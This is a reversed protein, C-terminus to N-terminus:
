IKITITEKIRHGNHIIIIAIPYNISCGIVRITIVITKVVLYTRNAIGIVISNCIRKNRLAVGVTIAIHLCCLPHIIVILISEIITVFRILIPIIVALCFENRIFIYIFVSNM